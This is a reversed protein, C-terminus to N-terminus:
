VSTDCVSSVALDKNELRNSKDYKNYSKTQNKSNLNWLLFQKIQVNHSSTTNM